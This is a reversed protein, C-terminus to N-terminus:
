SILINIGNPKQELNEIKTKFKLLNKKEDDINLNDFQKNITARYKEQIEDKFKYPVFGIEAWRRQFEKM